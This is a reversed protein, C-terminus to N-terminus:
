SDCTYNDSMNFRPQLSMQHIDCYPKMQYDSLPAGPNDALPPAPRNRWRSMDDAGGVKECKKINQRTIRFRFPFSKRPSVQTRRKLRSALLGPLIKTEILRPVFLRFLVHWWFYFEFHRPFKNQTLPGLWRQTATHETIKRHNFPNKASSLMLM